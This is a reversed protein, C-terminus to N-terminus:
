NVTTDPLYKHRMVSSGCVARTYFEEMRSNVKESRTETESYAWPCPPRPAVGGGAGFFRFSRSGFVSMRKTMCFKLAASPTSHVYQWTCPSIAASVLGLFSIARLIIAMTRSISVLKGLVAPTKGSPYLSTSQLVHWRPLVLGSVM